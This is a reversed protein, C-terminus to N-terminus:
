HWRNGYFFEIGSTTVLPDDQNSRGSEQCVVQGEQGQALAQLYLLGGRVQRGEGEPQRAGRDM